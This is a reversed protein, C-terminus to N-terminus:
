ARVVIPAILKHLPLLKEFVRRRQPKNFDRKFVVAIQADRHQIDFFRARLITNLAGIKQRGDVARRTKIPLM